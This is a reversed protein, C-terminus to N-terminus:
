VEDDDEDEDDVAGFAEGSVAGAGGGIKDDHKLLQVGELYFTVGYQDNRYGKARVMIRAWRGSYAETDLDDTDVEEGSQDRVKPRRTYATTRLMTWGELDVPEGRSTVDALKEDSKLFPSKLTTPKGDIKVKIPKNSGFDITVGFEDKAAENAMKVLAVIDMGPPINLEVAFKGEDDKNKSTKSKFKKALAVFSMRGRPTIVVDDEEVYHATKVDALNAM